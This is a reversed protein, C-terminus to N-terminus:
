VKANELVDHRDNNRSCSYDKKCNHVIKLVFGTMKPCKLVLKLNQLAHSAQFLLSFETLM